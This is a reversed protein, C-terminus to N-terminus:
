GVTYFCQLISLASVGVVSFFDIVRIGEDDVVTGGSEPPSPMMTPSRMRKDDVVLSRLAPADHYSIVLSSLLASHLLVSNRCRDNEALLKLVKLLRSSLFPGLHHGGNTTFSSCPKAAESATQGDSAQGRDRSEAGQPSRGWAGMIARHKGRNLEALEPIRSKGISAALTTM